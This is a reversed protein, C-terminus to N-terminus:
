DEMYFKNRIVTLIKGLMNAGSGDGDGWFYDTTTHEILPRFGTNLLNQKIELHQNFKLLLIDFMKQVKIEGWEKQLNYKRGMYKSVGPTVSRIQATVYEKNEIDKYAQWAAESTPFTGIDPVKVSHASFNSFGCTPGDRYARYFNLPEFFKHVFIKQYKSQPSGISRWKEKMENRNSHYKTTRHLAEDPTIGEMYCLISAVVVGSRGHGGKCHLYLREEDKLNRIIGTVRVIFKAFETLNVPIRHDPIPYNVYNYKTTYPTIRKEYDYTLNVFHRVGNSELEEVAEQTPFSGFLAKDNIFYSCRNM